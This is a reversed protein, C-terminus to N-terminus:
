DDLKGVENGWAAWGPRNRRSFVEIRRAEPMLREAAVYAADPKASHVGIPAEVVSRVNRATKPAGRTGILFPEGAGRMIYGTGFAQKGHVTKKSWHGSTKYVFGWADLVELALPLLPGTAWLWLLCDRAALVGVPLRRIDDATMCDYHAQASKGEGKDSRLAFAWPPDAMILEFGGAPRLAIFDDRVVMDVGAPVDGGRGVAAGPSWPRGADESHPHLIREIARDAAALQATDMRSVSAALRDCVRDRQRSAQVNV